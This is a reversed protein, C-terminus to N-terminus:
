RLGWDQFVADALPEALIVQRSAGLTCTV